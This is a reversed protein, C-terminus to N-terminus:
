QIGGVVAWERRTDGVVLTGQPTGADFRRRGGVESIVPGLELNYNSARVPVLLCVVGNGGSGRTAALGAFARATRDVVRTRANASVEERTREVHSNSEALHLVYRQNQWAIETSFVGFDGVRVVLKM